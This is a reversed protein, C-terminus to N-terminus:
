LKVSTFRLSDSEEYTAEGTSEAKAKAAKIEDTLSAIEAKKEKELEVVKKPYSWKKLKAITFQGLSHKESEVGRERMDALIESRMTEKKSELEAIQAELLAYEEFKNSM